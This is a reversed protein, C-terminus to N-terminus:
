TPDDGIKPEDARGRWNQLQWHAPDWFKPRGDEGDWDGGWEIKLHRKRAVEKGITGIIDWQKKSINWYDVAHVIDVACGFQHPSSYGRAKSRGSKYLEDQRKASRLMEFAIVPINRAKCAKYMAQWFEVIEPHVGQFAVESQKKKVEPRKLAPGDALDYAAKVYDKHVLEDKFWAHVRDLFKVWRLFKNPPRKEQQM